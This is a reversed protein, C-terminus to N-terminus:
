NWENKWVSYGATPLVRQRPIRIEYKVHNNMDVAVYKYYVTKGLSETIEIDGRWTASNIYQLTPAKNIDWNGLEPINGIIKVVEGFNTNYGNLQFAVVTSNPPKSSTLSIVMADNEELHLHIIKNNEVLIKRDSLEDTYVGDPLEISAINFTKEGGKNIAVVCTDDNYKRLYVFINNTIYRTVRFGKQIAQNDYRLKSLKNIIKFLRTTEDWTSMMPRNYPEQGSNIDNYLYQETGYFIIPIGRCTLLLIIALELKEVSGGISLFRPFCNIDVFTLLETSTKFKDDQKFVDDILYFGANDNKLFCKEIARHLSYDLLPIHTTNSFFASDDNDYGGKYWDGCLFINPKFAKLDSVLEQWFWIPMNKVSNFYFGDVGKNIWFEFNSKLFERYTFIYENFVALGTQHQNEIQWINEWDSKGDEYLHYWNIIDEDFSTLKKGGCYIPLRKKVEYIHSSSFNCVVDIILIMGRKHIESVFEEFENNNDAFLNSKDQLLDLQIKKFDTPWYGYYKESGRHEFDSLYKVIEFITSLILTTIGLSKLYDLKETISKITGGWYDNWSINSSDIDSIKKGTNFRDVVIYYITQSRFDLM